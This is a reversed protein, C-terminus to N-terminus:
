LNKILIEIVDSPRQYDSNELIRHKINRIEDQFISNNLLEDIKRKIDNTKDRKINGTLGIRHYSVRAANGKQDLIEILPYVLLPVNNMISEMVSNVGGHTIFIKCKPLIELQPVSRVVFINESRNKLGRVLNDYHGAAIVLNYQANDTFILM